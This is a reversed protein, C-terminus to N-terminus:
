KTAAKARPGSAPESSCARPVAMTWPFRMRCAGAPDATVGRWNHRGKPLGPVGDVFVEVQAEVPQVQAQDAQYQFFACLMTGFMGRSGVPQSFANEFQRLNSSAALKMPDGALKFEASLIPVGRFLSHIKYSTETTEVRSLVKPYGIIRGLITPLLRNLYLKCMMTFPGRFGRRPKSLRVNPLFVVFELYSFYVSPPAIAARVHQQFGFAIMVPHKGDPPAKAPDMEMGLPLIKRAEEATISSPTMTLLYIGRLDSSLQPAADDSQQWDRWYPPPTNGELWTLAGGILAATRFGFRHLAAVIEDM